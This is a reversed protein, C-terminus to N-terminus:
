DVEHEITLESQFVEHESNYHM